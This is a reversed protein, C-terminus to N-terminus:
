KATHTRVLSAPYDPEDDSYARALFAKSLAYWDQREADTSPEPVLTVLLRADVPLPFPEDLQIRDGDFHASLTVTRM